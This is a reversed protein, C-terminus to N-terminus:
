RTGDGESLPTNREAIAQSDSREVVVKSKATRASSHRIIPRRFSAIRSPKPPVESRPPQHSPSQPQSKISQESGSQDLGKFSARQLLNHDKDRDSSTRNRSLSEPKKVVGIHLPFPNPNSRHKGEVTRQVIPSDTAQSQDTQMLVSGASPANGNSHPSSPPRIQSTTAGDKSKASRRISAYKVDSFSLPVERNIPTRIIAGSQTSIPINNGKHYMILAPVSDFGEREFAFQIKSYPSGHQLVIKKIM